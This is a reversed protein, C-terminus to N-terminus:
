CSLMLEFKGRSTLTATATTVPHRIATAHKNTMIHDERSTGVHGDYMTRFSGLSHCLWYETNVLVAALTMFM